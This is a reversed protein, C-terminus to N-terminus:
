KEKSSKDDKPNSLNKESEKKLLRKTYKRLSLPTFSQCPENRLRVEKEEYTVVIVNAM